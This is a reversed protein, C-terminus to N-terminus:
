KFGQGGDGFASRRVFFCMNVTMTHSTRIFALMRFSLACAGLTGSPIEDGMMRIRAANQSGPRSALRRLPVSAVAAM